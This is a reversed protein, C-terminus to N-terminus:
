KRVNSFVITLTFIGDKTDIDLIGNYKAISEKVNELGYGHYDVNGKRTKLLVNANNGEHNFSNKVVIIINKDNYRCEVSIIKEETEEAAEFANSLVNSFITCIDYADIDCYEPFRGKVEMKINNQLAKAYYQNIIADVIGNQVTVNNGLQEIKIHMKELYKDIEEYENHKALNSILELHSRFDHRFKKTEKEQEELYEYHNKQENLYKETLLKKEKYLNRQMSLLIVACLQIFIGAIVLVVSMMFINKYKEVCLEVNIDTMVSVVITDMVLLLSFWILNRLGITKMGVTTNKRYIRGVTYVLILSISSVCLRSVVEANIQILKTLVDFLVITMTDIMSMAFSTWIIVVVVYHIKEEYLLATMTILVIFHVVLDVTINNQFYIFASVGGMGLGALYLILRRHNLERKRFAFFVDLLIIMKALHIIDALVYVFLSM